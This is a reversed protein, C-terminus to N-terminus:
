LEGKVYQHPDVAKGNKHVEFHVHPGSSRGSSGLLAIVQGKQVVDGQRVLNKKNHAYLTSYGDVHNIEVINGFGRVTSSRKVIGAAVAHIPTGTQAAFDMGKHHSRRGNLPDIRSGFRSSVWGQQVPRGSPLTEQLLDRSQWYSELVELKHERDALLGSVQDLDGQIDAVSQAEGAETPNGGTAPTTSFDFEAQNLGGIRVMREGLADIRMMRAQLAAVRVGLANLHTDQDSRVQAVTVQAQQLMARLETLARDASQQQTNSVGAM